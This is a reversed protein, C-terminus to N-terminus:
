GVAAAAEKKCPMPQWRRPKTLVAAEWGAM